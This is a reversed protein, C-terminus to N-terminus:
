NCSRQLPLCSDTHSGVRFDLSFPFFILSQEGPIHAFLQFWWRLLSTMVSGAFLSIPTQSISVSKKVPTKVTFIKLPFLSSPPIVENPSASFLHHTSIINWEAASQIHLLLQNPSSCLVINKWPEAPHLLPLSSATQISVEALSPAVRASGWFPLPLTVPHPKQKCFWLFGVEPLERM